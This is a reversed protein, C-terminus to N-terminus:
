QTRLLKTKQMKTEHLVMERWQQAIPIINLFNNGISIHQLTKGIRNQLLKLNEPRVNLDKICKSDINTCSSLYLDVKLKTCASVWNEWCMQQLPQRRWLINQVRKDFLLHNYSLPNISPYERRNL